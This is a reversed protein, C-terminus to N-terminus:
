RPQIVNTCDACEAYLRRQGKSEYRILVHAPHIMTGCYPCRGLSEHQSM